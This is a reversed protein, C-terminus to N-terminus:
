DQPACQAFNWGCDKDRRQLKKHANEESVGRVEGFRQRKDCFAVVKALHRFLEEESFRKLETDMALESRDHGLKRFAGYEVGALLLLLEAEIEVSADRENALLVRFYVGIEFIAGRAGDRRKEPRELVLEAAIARHDGERCRELIGGRGWGARRAFDGSPM